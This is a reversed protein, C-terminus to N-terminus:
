GSGKQLVVQNWVAMQTIQSLWLEVQLLFQGECGLEKMCVGM